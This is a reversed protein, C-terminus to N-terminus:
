KRAGFHGYRKPTLSYEIFAAIPKGLLSMFAIPWSHLEFNPVWFRLSQSLVDEQQTGANSNELPPQEHKM